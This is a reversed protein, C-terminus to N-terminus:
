NIKKTDLLQNTFVARYIVFRWAETILLYLLM